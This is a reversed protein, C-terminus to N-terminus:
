LVQATKVDSQLFGTRSRDSGSKKRMAVVGALHEPQEAGTGYSLRGIADRMTTTRIKAYLNMTMTLTKHGMLRQVTAPDAGKEILETAFTRRLGHVDMHEIENGEQDITRTEIGALKCCRLFAFYIAKPNSLPTNETTTFVHERTFRERVIATIEATKGKGQQRQDCEDRRATLIYRSRSDIPIRRSTHNKAVASRVVIEKTDWDIDRWRPTALENKRMGTVLYANWVDRWPESSAELLRCVEDSTLARGEKPDDHRLPQVGDLPDNGIL